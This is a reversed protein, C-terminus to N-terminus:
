QATTVCTSTPDSAACTGTGLDCTQCAGCDEDGGCSGGVCEGRAADCTEGAECFALNTATCFRAPRQKPADNAVRPPVNTFYTFVARQDDLTMHEFAEVPMPFGVRHAAEGNHVAVGNELLNVFDAFGHAHDYGFDLGALNASMTRVQGLLPQLPPPVAFVVGGTLYAPTNVKFGNGPDRGGAGPTHCANCTGVTNVIYSGRAYDIQEDLPLSAITAADDIPSIALGRLIEGEGGNQPLDRDIEGDVYAAPFDQPPFSPKTDALVANDIAPVVQLYAYIDSIDDDSLWRYDTWPMVLLSDNVDATKHDVGERIADFFEAETLRLGTTPHPTLNRSFVINGPGFAGSLDFGVGGSLYGQPGSHCGVCDGAAGVLYAGNAVAEIQETTMGTTDLAFPISALGARAHESLAAGAPGAPGEPGQPGADGQPGAPGEPGQPGAPGADGQPGAPGPAGDEGDQGDVGDDGAPGQPGAPGAPGAPGEPGPDGKDGQPGVCAALAVVLVLSPALGGEFLRKQM